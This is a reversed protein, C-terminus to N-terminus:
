NKNKGAGGSEVAVKLAELLWKRDFGIEPVGNGERSWVRALTERNEAEKSRKTMAKERLNV